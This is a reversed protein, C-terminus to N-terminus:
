SLLKLLEKENVILYNMFKEVLDKRGRVEIYDNINSNHFFYYDTKLNESKFDEYELVKSVDYTKNFLTGDKQKERIRQGLFHLNGKTSGCFYAVIYKSILAGIGKPLAELRVFNLPQFNDLLNSADEPIYQYIQNLEEISFNLGFVDRLYQQVITIGKSSFGTSKKSNEVYELASM